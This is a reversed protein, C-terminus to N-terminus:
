QKPLIVACMEMTKSSFVTKKWFIPPAVAGGGELHPGSTTGLLLKSMHKFVQLAISRSWLWFRGGCANLCGM